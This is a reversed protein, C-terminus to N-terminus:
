YAEALNDKSVGLHRLAVRAAQRASALSADVLMGEPGVWDGAIFLNTVGAVAPGPRGDMGGRKSSVVANSVLMRPLLRKSQLVDRWGPHLDDMLAELEKGLDAASQTSDSPLYKALQILAGNEPALKASRSHVSYYLPRDLGIAFQYEPRPLSKLAVDLCAAHIPSADESWRRLVPVTGGNVLRAIVSPSVTSIITRVHRLEGNALHIRASNEDCQIEEVASRAEIRVGAFRAAEVLQNVLTQWGHDIYDVGAGAMILQELAAGASQLHTDNCYTALRFLGEFYARVDDHQIQTELWERLPTSSWDSVPYDSRLQGMVSLAERRADDSWMQTTMIAEPTGPLRFKEAGHMVWSGDHSAQAGDYRVGLEKLVEVGHGGKYLAHPGQNFEFGNVNQTTARGGSHPAKEFLVVTRGARAAIVAATLGAMGGGIVAVDFEPLDTISINTTM